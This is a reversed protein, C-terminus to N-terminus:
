YYSHHANRPPQYVSPHHQSYLSPLAPYSPPAGEARLSRHHDLLPPHPASGPPPPPPQAPYRAILAAEAAAAAAASAASFQHHLSSAAAAQHHHLSHGVLQQHHHHYLNNGASYYLESKYKGLGKHGPHEAYATHILSHPYQTAVTASEEERNNSSVYKDGKNKDRKSKKRNDREEPPSDISRRGKGASKTDSLHNRARSNAELSGNTNAVGSNLSSEVRYEKPLEDGVFYYSNSSEAKRKLTLKLGGVGKEETRIKM